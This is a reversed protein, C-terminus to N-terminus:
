TSEITVGVDPQTEIDKKFKEKYLIDAETISSAICSFILTGEVDNKNKHKWYLFKHM